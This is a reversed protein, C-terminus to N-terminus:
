WISYKAVIKKYFSSTKNIIFKETKGSKLNIKIGVNLIGLVKYDSINKIESLLITIKEKSFNLKHTMFIFKDKYLCGVGGTTNIFFKKVHNIPSYDVLDSDKNISNSIIKQQSKQIYSLILKVLFFIAIGGIISGIISGM